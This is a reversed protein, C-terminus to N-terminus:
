SSLDRFLLMFSFYLPKMKVAITTHTHLYIKNLIKERLEVHIHTRQLLSKYNVVKKIAM